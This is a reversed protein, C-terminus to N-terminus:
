EDPMVRYQNLGVTDWEDEGARAIVGIARLAENVTATELTRAGTSFVSAVQQGVQGFYETELYVLAGGQSLDSCLEIVGWGLREFRVDAPVPEPYRRGLATMMAETMPLWAMGVDLERPAEPLGLTTIRDLATRPGVIGRVHHAM